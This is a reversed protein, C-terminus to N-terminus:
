LKFVISLIIPKVCLSNIFMLFDQSQDILSLLINFIDQLEELLHRFIEQIKCYRVKYACTSISGMSCKEIFHEFEGILM